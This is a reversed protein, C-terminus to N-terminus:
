GRLATADAAAYAAVTEFHTVGEGPDGHDAGIMLTFYRACVPSEAAAQVVRDADARSRWYVLDAWQGDPGKLLERRVFGPQHAVFDRQLAASAAVLEQETIGDKLKFPALEIITRNQM